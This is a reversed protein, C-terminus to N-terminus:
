MKTLGSFNFGDLCGYLFEKLKDEKGEDEYYGQVSCEERGLDLYAKTGKGVESELWIRHRLKDMVTKCLYLGIGTSKKNERGNYGTFGKEFVRPLDEPWIGIGTDEIVLYEEEMYISICRNESDRPIYKFANSLLQEIVFTLWKEDTVVQKGVAEYNLSINRLIFMKSYKKVAQRIIDDLEYQGFVFDTTMDTTRLYVLTMEVYQEIKFLEQRMERTIGFLREEAVPGDARDTLVDSQLLVRLAAIPTKIQHAWMGYYDATEKQFERSASESEEKDHYVKKLISQYDMEIVSFTEPLGNLEASAKRWVELLVEHRRKFKLFRVFEWVLFWIFSLLFAYRVADTRINYLYFIIPFIFMFGIYMIIEALHEKLYQDFIFITSSMTKNM